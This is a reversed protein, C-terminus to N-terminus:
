ELLYKELEHTHKTDTLNDDVFQKYIDGNPFREPVVSRDKLLGPRKGIIDLYNSFQWNEPINVLGASVPNLHIYRTLHVLYEEKDVLISRFRSQFLPGQRNQQKNVAMVYSGFLSKIMRDLNGDQSPKLLFHYHNPLLCYASISINYRTLNKKLLRLLYRYNEESFFIQAHNVGRNYIHYYNNALFTMLRPPMLNVM